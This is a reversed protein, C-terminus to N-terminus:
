PTGFYPYKPPPLIPTNQPIQSFGQFGANQPIKPYKGFFAIKPPIDPLYWLLNMKSETIHQQYLPFHKYNDPFWDNIKLYREM